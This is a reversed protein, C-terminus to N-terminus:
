TRPCSLPSHHSRCKKSQAIKIADDERVNGEREKEDEVRERKREREVHSGDTLCLACVHRRKKCLVCFFRITM